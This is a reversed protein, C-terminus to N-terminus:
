HALVPGVIWDGREGLWSIESQTASASDCPRAGGVSGVKSPPTPNSPSRVLYTIVEYNLRPHRVGQRRGGAGPGRGRHM